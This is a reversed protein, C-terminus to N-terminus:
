VNENNDNKNNGNNGNNEIIKERKCCLCRRKSNNLKHYSDIILKGFITEDREETIDYWPWLRESSTDDGRILEPYYKTIKYV